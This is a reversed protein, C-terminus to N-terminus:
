DASLLLLPACLPPQPCSTKWWINQRIWNKASPLLVDWQCFIETQCTQINVKLAMNAYLPFLYLYGAEYYSRCLPVATYQCAYLSPIPPLSRSFHSQRLNPFRIRQPYAYMHLINQESVKDYQFFAPVNNAAFYVKEEINVYSGMGLLIKKKM